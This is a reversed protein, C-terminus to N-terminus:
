TWALDEMGGLSRPAENRDEDSLRVPGNLEYVVQILGGVKTKKMLFPSAARLSTV